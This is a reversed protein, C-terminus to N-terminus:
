ICERMYRYFGMNFLDKLVIGVDIFGREWINICICRFIVISCLFNLVCRVSIFNIM